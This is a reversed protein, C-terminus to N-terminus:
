RRASEDGEVSRRASGSGSIIAYMSLGSLKVDIVMTTQGHARPTPVCSILRASQRAVEDIASAPPPLCLLAVAKSYVPPMNTSDDSLPSVLGVADTPLGTPDLSMSAAMSPPAQTSLLPRVPGNPHIPCPFLATHRTIFFESSRRGRLRRPPTRYACKVSRQVEARMRREFSQIESWSIASSTACVFLHRDPYAAPANVVLFNAPSETFM